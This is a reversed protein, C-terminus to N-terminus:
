KVPAVAEIMEQKEYPSMKRNFFTEMQKVIEGYKLTMNKHTTRAMADNLVMQSLSQDFDVKFNALRGNCDHFADETQMVMGRYAVSCTKQLHWGRSILERSQEILNRFNEIAAFAKKAARAHGSPTKQSTYNKMESIVRETGPM